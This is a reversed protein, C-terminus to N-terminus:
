LLGLRQLMIVSGIFSLDIQNPLLANPLLLAVLLSRPPFAQFYCDIMEPTWTSPNQSDYVVLDRDGSQEIADRIAKSAIICGQSPDGEPNGGHILFGSRGYMNNSPDPILPFNDLPTGDSKCARRNGIRYRGAPIPGKGKEHQREPNNRWVGKKGSFGYGKLVFDCPPTAPDDWHIAGTRRDYYWTLGNPDVKNVPDNGCYRYLNPDGSAADIPDRQLWRATRPDYARAGVHYLSVEPIWEYGYAGNWTFPQRTTGNHVVNGWADYDYRDTIQGTEADILARVHGLADCVYLQM